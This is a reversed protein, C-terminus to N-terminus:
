RSHVVILHCVFRPDDLDIFYKFLQEPVLQGKYVIITNSLSCFYLEKGRLSCLRRLLFLKLSLAGKLAELRQLKRGTASGGGTVASGASGRRKARAASPVDERAAGPTQSSSAPSPSMSVDGGHKGSPADNEGDDFLGESIGVRRPGGPIRARVTVLRTCPPPIWRSGTKSRTIRTWLWSFSRSTHSRSARTSVQPTSHCPWSELAAEPKMLHCTASDCLVWSGVSDYLLKKWFFLNGLHSSDTPVQRWGLIKLGLKRAIKAILQECDM